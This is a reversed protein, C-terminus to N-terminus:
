RSPVRQGSHTTHMRAQANIWTHVCTHENINAMSEHKESNLRQPEKVELEPILVSNKRM